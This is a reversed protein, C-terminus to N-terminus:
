VNQLKWCITSVKLNKFQLNDSQKYPKQPFKTIFQKSIKNDYFQNFM